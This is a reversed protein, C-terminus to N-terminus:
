LVPRALVRITQMKFILTMSKRAELPFILSVVRLVKRPVSPAAATIPIDAPDATAPSDDM